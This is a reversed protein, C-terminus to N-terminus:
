LSNRWFFIAGINLTPHWKPFALHDWGVLDGPQWGSKHTHPGKGNPDVMYDGLPTFIIALHSMGLMREALRLGDSKTFHEIGDTCISVDFYESFVPHEGLVDAQVFNAGIPRGFNDEVDVHVSRAFRLHQSTAMEGCCLDIMTKRSSDGILANLVDVQLKGSGNAQTNFDKINM